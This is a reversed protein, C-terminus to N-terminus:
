TGCPAVISLHVGAGSPVTKREGLNELRERREAFVDVDHATKRVGKDCTSAVDRGTRIVRARRRHEEGAGDGLAPPARM